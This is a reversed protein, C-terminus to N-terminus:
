SISPSGRDWFNDSTWLDHGKEPLLILDYSKGSHNLAEAMKMTESFPLDDDITGHIMLLRGKLRLALALNSGYDYAARNDNPFGMYPEVSIRFDILAEGPASAVAVQYSLLHGV